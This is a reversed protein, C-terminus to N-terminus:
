EIVKDARLLLATPVPHGIAGATKLNIVLEFNTPQEVPIDAPKTGRLVKALMRARQRFLQTFRPGYAAFGGEKEAMEPWQYITPLRCDQVYDLIIRRNLYLMPSSLVNIAKAGLEKVRNIAPVIEERKSVGMISLEVNRTTAAAQLTDLHRQPTTTLDALTAIRSAGPVAEALLDQRKIDLDLSLLSIGTTNGGPRALSAVLGSAVMDETMGLLPISRTAQQLAKTAPDGGCIIADPNAKVLAEVLLANRESSAEFGDPLIVLNKGEFFGNLRLEDLFAVIAPTQRGVPVLFGLHYIRGPQQALVDLPWAAAMGGVFTLFDRRRM